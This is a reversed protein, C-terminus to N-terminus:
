SQGALIGEGSDEFIRQSSFADFAGMASLKAYEESGDDGFKLTIEGSIVGSVTM